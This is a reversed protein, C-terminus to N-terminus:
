FSYSLGLGVSNENYDQTSGLNQTYDLARRKEHQVYLSLNLENSFGYSYSLRARNTSFGERSSTYSFSRKRRDIGVHFSAASSMRYGANAGVSQEKGDEDLVQYDEMTEAAHIGATCGDCFLSGEWSFEFSRINILDLGVGANSRSTNTLAVRNGNGASSDTITQSARLDFKHTGLVYTSGLDYSPRSYSETSLEPAARNRGARLTYSLHSLQVSYIVAASEYQYNANPFDDFKVDSREAVLHLNDTKSLGRVWGLEGGKRNSKKTQDDRYNLDSFNGKIFLRDASNLRLSLMPEVKVIDREDRFSSLDNADPSRLISQRSHSFLISAPQYQTGFTAKASGEITQSDPYSAKSYKENAINYNAKFLAWENRYLAGLDASYTDIREYSKKDELTTQEVSRKGANDSVETELAIGLNLQNDGKEFAAQCVQALFFLGPVLYFYRKWVHVKM